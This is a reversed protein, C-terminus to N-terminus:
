FQDIPIWDYRHDNQPFFHPGSYNDFEIFITHPMKNTDCIIDRVVGSAGNVLGKDTWINSTFNVRAEACLYLNNPLGRFVDDKSSKIRNPNNIATIWQQVMPKQLVILKTANYTNCSHNDM